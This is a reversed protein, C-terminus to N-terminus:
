EPKGCYTKNFDHRHVDFEDKLDKLKNRINLHSEEDDKDHWKFIVDLM